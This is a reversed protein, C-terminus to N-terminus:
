ANVEAQKAEFYEILPLNYDICVGFENQVALKLNDFIWDSITLCRVLAQDWGSRYEADALSGAYLIQAVIATEEDLGADTATRIINFGDKLIANTDTM